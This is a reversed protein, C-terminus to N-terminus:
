SLTAHGVYNIVKNIKERIHEVSNIKLIRIDPSILNKLKFDRMLILRCNPHFTVM